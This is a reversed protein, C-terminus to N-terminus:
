TGGEAIMSRWIAFTLIPWLLYAHNAARERHQRWLSQVASARLYPELAAVRTDLYGDALSALPGRLLQSIPVNFGKKAGRVISDPIGARRATERLLRKPRGWFNFLLGLSCRGAFEMVRRDLFPVRVEVSHAMSMADVKGLISQLHFRQDALLCRELYTDAEAQDIIRQYPEL